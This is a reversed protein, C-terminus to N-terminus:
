AADGEALMGATLQQFTRPAYGTDPCDVGVDRSRRTGDPRRPFYVDALRDVEADSIIIGAERAEANLLKETIFGELVERDEATIQNLDGSPFSRSMKSQAFGNLNSLTYPEGNIVVVLQDVVTAPAAPPFLLLLFFLLSAKIM